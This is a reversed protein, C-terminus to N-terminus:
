SMLDEQDPHETLTDLGGMDAMGLRNLKEEQREKLMQQTEQEDMISTSPEETLAESSQDKVPSDPFKMPSILESSSSDVGGAAFTKTTKNAAAPPVPLQYSPSDEEEFAAGLLDDAQAFEDEIKVQGSLLDDSEEGSMRNEEIKQNDTQIKELEHRLLTAQMDDMALNSRDM